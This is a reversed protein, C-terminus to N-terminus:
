ADHGGATRLSAEPLFKALESLLREPQQSQPYHGADPVMVLRGGLARAIWRGETAPDAFDPDRDGMVVLTPAQVAGLRAEAPAHTTRTTLSFAAAYGPRRLSRVVSARYQKFDPPKRGTYLTPLYSRWVMPAWWRKTAARFLLMKLRGAPPDRVFAGILVLASVLDPRDAAAIVAAGAGMSNGILVAPGGLHEILAVIDGATEEDGYSPFTPDSGGHGRLDTAAVRYGLAVLGPVLYRYTSRLDGMGPVLVMLPGHGEEDYVIRGDPRTLTSM